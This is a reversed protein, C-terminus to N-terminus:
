DNQTADPNKMNYQCVEKTVGGRRLFVGLVDRDVPRGELDFGTDFFTDFYYLHHYKFISVSTGIPDFTQGTSNTRGFLEQTRAQDIHSGDQALVVAIGPPRTIRPVTHGVVGGCGGWGHTGFGLWVIINEPAGDNDVDVPPDYRWIPLDGESNTFRGFPDKGFFDDGFHLNPNLLGAIPVILRDLDSVQVPRRGLVAFGPVLKNEPRGCYPAQLSTHRGQRYYDVSNLRQLYANCVPIGRGKRLTFHYTENVDAVKADALAGNVGLVGILALVAATRRWAAMKNALTM